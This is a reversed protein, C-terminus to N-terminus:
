QIKIYTEEMYSHILVKKTCITTNKKSIEKVFFYYYNHGIVTGNINSNQNHTHIYQLQGQM